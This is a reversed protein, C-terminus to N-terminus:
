NRGKNTELGVHICAELGVRGLDRHSRARSAILTGRALCDDSLGHFYEAGPTM